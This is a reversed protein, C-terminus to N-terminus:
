PWGPDSRLRPCPPPTCRGSTCCATCTTALRTSECDAGEPASNKQLGWPRCHRGNASLRWQLSCIAVAASHFVGQREAIVRSPQHGKSALLRRAPALDNQDLSTASGRVRDTGPGADERRSGRSRRSTARDGGAGGAAPAELAPFRRLLAAKRRLLPVMHDGAHDLRSWWSVGGGVARRKEPLDRDLTRCGTRDHSWRGDRIGRVRIAEKKTQNTRPPDQPLPPGFDPSLGEGPDRWLRCPAVPM